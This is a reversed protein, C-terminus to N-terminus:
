AQMLKALEEPLESRVDFSLEPEGKYAVRAAHLAHRTLSPVEAGGYLTDGALPFGIASFHARIQHRLARAVEVRVLAWAETRKEVTYRTSAPRPSYRMVDRPHVCPYVRRQDKPHNAIPFEISGEDPLGESACVLLYEKEVRDDKLAEKLRLFASETKAVVLLGSTDTDLRHLLGPERKSYGVGEMAPYKAILANALTGTEGHKIPASPMGAPKDVVLLHENEFRVDLPISADPLPSEDGSAVESLEFELKDGEAVLVGGKPHIRGNVRVGGTEILKKVRARSAGEVLEVLAKDLRAGALAAPVIREEKSM